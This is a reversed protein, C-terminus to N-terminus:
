KELINKISDSIMWNGFTPSSTTDMETTPDNNLLCFYGIYKAMYLRM